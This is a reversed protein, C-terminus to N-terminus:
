LHPVFRVETTLAIEHITYKKKLHDLCEKSPEFLYAKKININKSVFDAYGGLNAGIDFFIIKKNGFFRKVFKDEKSLNSFIYTILNDLSQLTKLIFKMFAFKVTIFYTKHSIVKYIM